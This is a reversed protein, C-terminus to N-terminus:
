EILDVDNYKSEISKSMSKETTTFRSEKLIIVPGKNSPAYQYVWSEDSAIVKNLLDPNNEEENLLERSSSMPTREAEDSLLKPTFKVSVQCM